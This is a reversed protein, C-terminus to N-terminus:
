RINKGPWYGRFKFLQEKATQHGQDAAMRFWKYAKAHIDDYDIVRVHIHGYQLYLQGLLFQAGANGKNAAKQLWREATDYYELSEATRTTGYENNLKWFYCYGMGYVASVNVMGKKASKEFYKIAADLDCEVGKGQAYCWGVTIACTEDNRKAGKEFWYFALKPNQEIELGNSYSAALNFIAEEHDQLAAKEYWFIAKQSDVKTGEGNDYCLALRYQAEALGQNAAKHFYEFAKGYDQHGAKGFFYDIALCLQATPNGKDAFIKHRVYELHEDLDFIYIHFKDINKIYKLPIFNQVMVEAQYFPMESDELDFHSNFQTTDFHIKVFDELTSGHHMDNRVSNKDSFRTNRWTIVETDIELIVPDDIRGENKAQYMMPHNRTFSTRVYYELGKRADLERSQIDGGPKPITIGQEVCDMWSYLGGYKIISELNKRDTFHYLSKIGHEKLIRVFAQSTIKKEM